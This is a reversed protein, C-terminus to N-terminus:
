CSAANTLTEQLGSRAGPRSFNSADYHLARVRVCFLSAHCPHICNILLLYRCYLKARSHTHTHTSLKLFSFTSCPYSFSTIVHNPNIVHAHTFFAPGQVWRGAGQVRVRVQCAPSSPVSCTVEVEVEEFDHTPFVPIRVRFRWKVSKVTFRELSETKISGIRFGPKRACGCHM